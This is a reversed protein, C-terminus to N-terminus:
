CQSRLYHADIEQRMKSVAQEWTPVLKQLEEANTITYEDMCAIELGFRVPKAEYFVLDPGYILRKGAFRLDKEITAFLKLLNNKKHMEAIIREVDRTCSLVPVALFDDKLNEIPVGECVHFLFDYTMTPTQIGGSKGFLICDTEKELAAKVVSDLVLIETM